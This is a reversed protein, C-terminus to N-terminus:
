LSNRKPNLKEQSTSLAVRAKSNKSLPADPLPDQESVVGKSDGSAEVSIEVDESWKEVAEWEKGIFDPMLLTGEPPLGESLVIHVISNKEVQTQVPPDQFMVKNKEFRLSPQQSIEGLSLFRTRLAIEAARLSLGSLEPVSVLEGGQSLIVRILKGERVTLGGEPKQRTITGAPVSENFESGEQKLGLNQQSLIKLAESVTKGTLNPVPVEKLSHVLGKIAWNIVGASIALLIFFLAMKELKDRM